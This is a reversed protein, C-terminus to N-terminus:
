ENHSEFVETLYKYTKNPKFGAAIFFIKKGFEGESEFEIFIIGIFDLKISKVEEFSIKGKKNLNEIYLYNSDCDVQCAKRAFLIGLYTWGLILLTPVFLIFFFKIRFENNLESLINIFVIFYALPLATVFIIIFYRSLKDYGNSLNKMEYSKNM